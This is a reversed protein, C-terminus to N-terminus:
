EMTGSFFQAAEQPNSSKKQVRVCDAEAEAVSVGTGVAVPEPLAVMVVAGVAVPDPLAVMVGAGVAVTDPLAM